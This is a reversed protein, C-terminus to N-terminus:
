KTVTFEGSAWFKGKNDNEKSVALPKGNEDTYVTKVEVERSSWVEIRVKHTGETLSNFGTQFNDPFDLLWSSWNGDPMVAKKVGVQYPNPENDIYMRYILSQPPVADMKNVPRPLYVRGVFKEEASFTSSLMGEVEKIKGERPIDEKSFMIVGAGWWEKSKIKKREDDTKKVIYKHYEGQAQAQSYVQVSSFALALSLVLTKM